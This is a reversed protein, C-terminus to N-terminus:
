QGVAGRPSPPATLCWLPSLWRLHSIVTTSIMVYSVSLYIRLASKISMARLANDSPLHTGKHVAGKPRSPEAGKTGPNQPNLPNQGGKAPPNLPHTTDGQPRHTKYGAQRAGAEM